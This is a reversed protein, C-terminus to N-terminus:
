KAVKKRIEELVKEKNKNNISGVLKENDDASKVEKGKKVVKKFDESNKIEHDKNRKELSLGFIKLIFSIIALISEKM